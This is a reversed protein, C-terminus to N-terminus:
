RRLKKLSVIETKINKLIRVFSDKMETISSFTINKFNKLKVSENNLNKLIKIIENDTEKLVEKKQYINYYKKIITNLEINIQTWIKEFLYKKQNYNKEYSNKEEKLINKINDKNEKLKDFIINMIKNYEEEKYSDKNLKNLALLLNNISGLDENLKTKDINYKKVLINIQSKLEYIYSEILNINQNNHTDSYSAYIYSTNISLFIILIFIFKKM